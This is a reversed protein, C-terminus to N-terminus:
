ANTRNQSHVMRTCKFAWTYPSESELTAGGCKDSGMMNTGFWLAHRTPWWLQRPAHHMDLTSMMYLPRPECYPGLVHDYSFHTLNKNKKKSPTEKEMRMSHLAIYLLKKRPPGIFEKKPLGSHLFFNNPPGCIFFHM